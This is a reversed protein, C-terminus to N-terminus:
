PSYPPPPENPVNLRNQNVPLDSFVPPPDDDPNQSSGIRINTHTLLERYEQFMFSVGFTGWIGEYCIYGIGVNLSVLGLFCGLLNGLIIAVYTVSELIFLKLQLSSNHSSSIVCSKIAFVGGISLTGVRTLSLLVIYVPWKTNSMLVIVLIIHSVVAIPYYVMKKTQYPTINEM